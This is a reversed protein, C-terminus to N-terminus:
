SKAFAITLHKFDNFPKLFILKEQFKIHDKYLTVKDCQRAM